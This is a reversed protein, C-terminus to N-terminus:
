RDDEGPETVVVDAVGLIENNDHNNITVEAETGAEPRVDPLDFEVAFQGDEGVTAAEVAFFPNPEGPVTALHLSVVTGEELDVTGSIVPNAPDFQIPEGQDFTVNELRDAVPHSDRGDSGGNDGSPGVVIAEATELVARDAATSVEVVAETGPEASTLDHTTTFTGNGDITVEESTFFPAPSGPPTKVVVRLTTGSEVHAVGSVDTAKSAVGLPKEADFEVAPEGLEVTVDERAVLGGHEALQKSGDGTYITVTVPTAQAVGSLDFEATFNGRGDVTVLTVASFPEGEEATVFVQLETGNPLDATGSVAANPAVLELQEGGEFEIEDPETVSEDGSDFPSLGAIAGIAGAFLVTTLFLALFALLKTNWRGAMLGTTM